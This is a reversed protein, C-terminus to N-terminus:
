RIRGPCSCWGKAPKRASAGCGRRPPGPRLLRVGVDDGVGAGGDGAAGSHDDALQDLARRLGHEGRQRGVKTRGGVEIVGGGAVDGGGVRGGVEFASGFGIKRPVAGEDGFGPILSWAVDEPVVILVFAVGIRGVRPGDVDGLDGDVSKGVRAATVSKWAKCSTPLTM